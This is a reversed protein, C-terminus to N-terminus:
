LKIEFSEERSMKLWFLIATDAFTISGAKRERSLQFM